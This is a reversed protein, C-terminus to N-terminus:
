VGGTMPKELRGGVIYWLGGFASYNLGL